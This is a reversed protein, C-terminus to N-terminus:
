VSLNAGVSYTISDADGHVANVRYSFPILNNATLNPVPTFGIGVKLVTTGVSTIALPILIPYWTASAEDFGEINFVVSPTATIATVVIIFHAARHNPNTFTASITTATRAASALITIGENSHQRIWVDGASSYLRPRADTPYVTRGIPADSEAADDGVTMRAAIAGDPDHLYPRSSVPAMRSQTSFMTEAVSAVYAQGGQRDWANGTEDYLALRGMVGALNDPVGVPAVNDSNDDLYRQAILGTTVPRVLIAGDDDAVIPQWQGAGGFSTTNLSRSVLPYCIPGNLSQDENVNAM